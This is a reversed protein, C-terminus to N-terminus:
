KLKVTGGAAELKAKLDAAEEKSVAEKITVPASDVLEKAEKLGLTTLERVAKIVQVRNPGADVLIVDFQTPEEEEVVPTPVTPLAQAVPASSVGWKTELEKVLECIQIVPLNSLYDIVQERTLEESM